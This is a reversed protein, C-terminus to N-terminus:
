LDRVVIVVNIRDLSRLGDFNCIGNKGHNYNKIKQQM